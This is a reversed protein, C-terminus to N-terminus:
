IVFSSATGSQRGRTVDSRLTHGQRSMHYSALDRGSCTLHDSDEVIDHPNVDGSPSSTLVCTWLHKFFNISLYSIHYSIRDCPSTDSGEEAGCCPVYRVGNQANQPVYFHVRNKGIQFPFVHIKMTTDRLRSKISM